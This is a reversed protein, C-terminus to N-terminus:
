KDDRWEDHPQINEDLEKEKQLVLDIYPQHRKGDLTKNTKMISMSDKVNKMTKYRNKALEDGYKLLLDYDNKVAHTLAM